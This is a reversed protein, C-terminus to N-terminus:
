EAFNRVIATTPLLGKDTLKNIYNVLDQEQQRCLLQKNKHCMPQLNTVNNFRRSLNSRDVNYVKVTATINPKDSLRLDKLALEIPDM